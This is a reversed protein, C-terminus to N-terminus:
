DNEILNQHFQKSLIIGGEFGVKLCNFSRSKLIPLPDVRLEGLAM